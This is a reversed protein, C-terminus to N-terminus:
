HRKLRELMAILCYQTSYGKRFGCLYTSLKDDMFQHIYDHMKREFLKSLSSLISIPRYNDRSCKENKKYSPTIGALKMADPFLGNLISHNFLKQIVPAFIGNYEVQIKAPINNYTTPKATDLNKILNSIDLLTSLLM